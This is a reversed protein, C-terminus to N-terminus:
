CDRIAECISDLQCAHISHPDRDIDWCRLDCPEDCREIFERAYHAWHLSVNNDHNSHHLFYRTGTVAPEMHRTLALYGAVTCVSGIRRPYTLGATIAMAGGQSHGILHIDSPETGERILLDITEHIVTLSSSLGAFEPRRPGELARNDDSSPEFWGLIPIEPTGLNVSGELNVFRTKELIQTCCEGIPVMTSGTGGLGHFLLITRRAMQPEAIISVPIEFLHEVTLTNDRCSTVLRSAAYQWALRRSDCTEFGYVEYSRNTFGGVYGAVGRQFDFHTRERCLKFQDTAASIDVPTCRLSRHVVVGWVIDLTSPNM